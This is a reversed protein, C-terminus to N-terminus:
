VGDACLEAAEASTTSPTLLAAGDTCGDPAQMVDRPVLLLAPAILAYVAVSIWVGLAFGGRQYLWSGFLDGARIIGLSASAMLMMAAGELGRPCARMLLDMYAASAFGGLLGAGAAAMMATTMSDVFLLPILQLVAFATGWWLLRWLSNRRCAFAYWLGTPVFSLYFVTWFMGVAESTLHVHDTLYFLLPTQLVPGFQWLTFILVAPWLPRHRFLRSVSTWRVEPPAPAASAPDFVAPPCWLGLLALLATLAAVLLFIQSPNAHATLWGGLAQTIAGPVAGMIVWLAGLRGTMGSSQGVVTMLGQAAAGIAQGLAGTLLIVLLLRAYTLPGFALSVYLLACPPAALLLYGRDGKGLPRWRDRLFGFLFGVYGPAGAIAAFAAIAGPGLQLRDKLFFLIPLTSLGLAM